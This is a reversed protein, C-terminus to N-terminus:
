SVQAAPQGRLFHGSPRLEGMAVKAAVRARERLYDLPTSESAFLSPQVPRAGLAKVVPLIADEILRQQDAHQGTTGLLVPVERLAEPNVLDFFHKFLGPFSGRRLPTVLILVDACEVADLAEELERTAEGRHLAQGLPRALHALELLASQFAHERELAHLLVRGLDACRSPSALSGTIAVANLFRFV